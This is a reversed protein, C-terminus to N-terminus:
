FTGMPLAIIFESGIGDKSEVELAGGHGKTVIDYALSLGLGTGQGTPKTTFFPQFIKDKIAEPIGNGNDKISIEITNEMRKTTVKVLPQYDEIGLKAKETVTSRSREAVAYFANNILNLIVRGIDQPIVSVLPLDPDFHTEMMANFSSDKARLGHYALRLYEDALANLDTPEKVGSSTRSHELMGKVISSARQGHHNIKELNTKLDNAIAHAEDTEGKTLEEKLEDLMEASVEAFNNVFNLPNQIEHAIGATLEGLSALKESQILQAQTAKLNELSHSLEDSKEKLESTREAVKEELIAKEKQLSRTRWSIFGFISIGGISFYCVYAWWSRWWPPLVRFSYIVPETWVGNAGKAKFKFTYTGEHINGFSANSRSTVPSWEKDYGELMYQYKVMLPKSTEIAVFEFSIHNYEYPLVLNEPVPYFRRIGDFKIGRFRQRMKAREAATLERMFLSVEETVYAPTTLSDLALPREDLSYWPINEDKVKIAQIVLNPVERNTKLAAPDFRVLATKESGTGAWIIGKSDLFLANQGLTLNKVPYGTNSNYIELDKLKTFDKSPTFLTIGLNTGVAMKGNPLQIVQMVMNDSLGDAMTFSKFMLHIPERKRGRKEEFKLSKTACTKVIEAPMVSIGDLTGFWLNGTNDEIISRVENNALGQVTTFTIFSQGNYRSVGGVTGFWLNGQKDKTISFVTNHALGQATTFTRFSQGDYCSIGGGNTGFWLNGSRDEAISFIADHALGQAKSFTTFSQGDFRSVGGVLTGFWLNRAKDEVISLVTNDALGQATNFTRFSQGDYRSVGGGWTGFWLNGQKDETIGRINNHALGHTTTFTIFSPGNYRSIGGGYTGFWLNGTNDEIINRVENHALGQNTTFTTFSPSGTQLSAAPDYRSVGGGRTGFWINGTKDEFISFVINHALGQTTTFTTFSPFDTRPTSLSGTSGSASPDHCSVGGGRTGFWLKGTKDEFFSRVDNHALGQATTFTRFSQGDYYSVGGGRTGFWLNGKKDEIICNVENDALGQATTFTRFLKGDYCSVGGGGTGFWLNGRKDTIISKVNNDALGQATTFTRFSQGDYCSVGGGWTGFWLKGTKDEAISWVDNNALGQATTFPQFSHGDYRSVGGGFTGFWLNGSKDLLSCNVADLALGDDTTFNSFNSIGGDGMPYPKGNAGLITEGKENQLVPLMKTIGGNKPVVTRTPKPMQKLLFTKPQLSDPLEALVTVQYPVLSDRLTKVDSAKQVQKPNCSCFGLILLALHVPSAKSFKM